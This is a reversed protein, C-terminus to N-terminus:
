TERLTLGPECYSAVCRSAPNSISGMGAYNVGRGADHQMLTADYQSGPRLVAAVTGLVCGLVQGKVAVHWNEEGRHPTYIKPPETTPLILKQLNQPGTGLQRPIPSFCPSTISYQILLSVDRGRLGIVM